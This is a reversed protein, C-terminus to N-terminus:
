KSGTSRTAPVFGSNGATNTTQTLPALLTGKQGGMVSDVSRLFSESLLNLKMDSPLYGQIGGFAAAMQKAIEVKVFADTGEVAYAKLRLQQAEAESKGLALVGEAQALTASLKGKAELELKQQEGKAALIATEQAAEAKLVAVEKDRQAEVVQKNLDAQALAKAKLADAEAATTEEKARLAKQTAVQKAKIETVYAADLEIHEIVFNEVIVGRQHLESGDVTLARQIETQLRVLGEGSYAEIAKLQTASDKVVRMLAPRILKDEIDKRVTKHIEVVKKPDLRWRLNLSIIMDQGEQSQVKYADQSRGIGKEHRTDNNNMVFVQSSVDYTYITQNFGPFLFYTKPQLVEAEVGNAWTEKVGVQNGEVTKIKVFLLATICLGLAIIGAIITKIQM